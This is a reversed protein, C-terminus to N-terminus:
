FFQVKVECLGILHRMLFGGDRHWQIGEAGPPRIWIESCLLQIFPGLIQSVIRMTPAFDILPLFLPDRQVANDFLFTPYSGKGLTAYLNAARQSYAQIQETTLLRPLVVIGDRDFRKILSEESATANNNGMRTREKEKV